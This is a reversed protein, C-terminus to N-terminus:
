ETEEEEIQPFGLALFRVPVADPPADSADATPLADILAAIGSELERLGTPTLRLASSRLFASREWEAVVTRAGLFRELARAERVVLDVAVASEAPTSPASVVHERHRWWRELGHTPREDEEIFGHKALQRLHYSTAGSSEGLRRALASATAPGEFRLHELLEVRLPHALARLSRVDYTGLQSSTAV